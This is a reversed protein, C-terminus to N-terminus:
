ENNMKLIANGVACNLCLREDCYHTKLEILAQSDFASATKIGLKEFSRTIANSEKDLIELWSLARAQIAANKHYMGYAFVSSVITNIMINDTMEKGLIKKKYASVEDPIYHYHWYDNATVSFLKITERINGAELIRSFCQEPNQLLAALQALRITPFNGPRMRLFHVPLQIPQLRYKKALFHYEKQLMRPYHDRFKKNLLGAQGFLLAELQQIQQRHRALLPFPLSRGLAEFAETNVTAGFNRALLWWYIEEWNGGTEGLLKFVMESRRTLREALLREKWSTWTLGPVRGISSGCAIFSPAQMLQEYRELLIGPIRSHLELVPITSTDPQDHEQVVHLIVNNYNADMSHGHEEWQSSRLHLEVSGALVTGDVRIQADTFDPGQNRNWKGPRLIELQEGAVTQLGTLNFYQFQWIYQLLKETMIMQM